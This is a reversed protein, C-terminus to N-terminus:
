FSKRKDTIITAGRLDLAYEGAFIGQYVREIEGAESDIYDMLNWGQITRLSNFQQHCENVIADYVSQHYRYEGEFMFFTLGHILNNKLSTSAVHFFSQELDFPVIGGGPHALLTFLALPNGNIPIQTDLDFDEEETDNLLIYDDPSLELGHAYLVSFVAELTLRLPQPPLVLFTETHGSM